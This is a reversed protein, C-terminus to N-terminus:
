GAGVGDVFLAPKEHVDSLRAWEVGSALARSGMSQASAPFQTDVFKANSRKAGALFKEEVQKAQQLSCTRSEM